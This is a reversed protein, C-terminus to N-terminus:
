QTGYILEVPGGSDADSELAQKATEGIIQPNIVQPDFRVTVTIPM